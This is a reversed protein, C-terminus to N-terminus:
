PVLDSRHRSNKASLQGVLADVPAGFPTATRYGDRKARRRGTIGLTRRKAGSSLIALARSVPGVTTVCRTIRPERRMTTSCLRLAPGHMRAKARTVDFGVVETLRRNFYRLWRGRTRTGSAAEPWTAGHQTSSREVGPRAYALRTQDVRADPITTRSPRREATCGLGFWAKCGVAMRRRRETGTASRAGAAPSPL